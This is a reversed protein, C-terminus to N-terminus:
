INIIIIHYSIIIPKFIKNNIIFFTKHYKLEFFAVTSTFLFKHTHTNRKRKFFFSIVVMKEREKFFSSICTEREKFLFLYINRKRQFLFLYINRKRQFPLSLHKEKKSFSSICTEREKFLFPVNINRKRQFLLSEM